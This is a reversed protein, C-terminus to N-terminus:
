NFFYIISSLLFALSVSYEFSGNENEKKVMMWGETGEEMGYEDAEETKPTADEDMKKASEDWYEDDEIPHEKVTEDVAKNFVHKISDILKENEKRLHEEDNTESEQDEMEDKEMVMDSGDDGEGMIEKKEEVMPKMKNTSATTTKEVDDDTKDTEYGEDYEDEKEAVQPYDEDGEYEFQENMSETKKNEMEKQATMESEQRRREEERLRAEETERQAALRRSEEEKRREELQARESEHQRRREDDRARQEQIRREAEARQQERRATEERWYQEHQQRRREEDAAKERDEKEKRTREAVQREYERKREEDRRRAEERDVESQQQLNKPHAPAEEVKSETTTTEMDEPTPVKVQCRDGTFVGLLCICSHFDPRELDYVCMGGNECRIRCHSQPSVLSQGGCNILGVNFAFMLLFLSIRSNM